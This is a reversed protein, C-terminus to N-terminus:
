TPMRPSPSTPKPTALLQHWTHLQCPPTCIPLAQQSSKQRSCPMWGSPWIGDSLVIWPRLSPFPNHKPSKCATEVRRELPSNDRPQNLLGESRFRLIPPPSAEKGCKSSSVTDSFM